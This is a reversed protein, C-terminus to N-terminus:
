RAWAGPRTAVPAPRPPHGRENAMPSRSRRLGPMAAGELVRAYATAILTARDNTLVIRRESAAWELVHADPQGKLGVDQVRVIDIGRRILTRTIAGSFNEDACYRIM